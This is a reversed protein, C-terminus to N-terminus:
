EEGKGNAWDPLDSARGIKARKTAAKSEGAEGTELRSHSSEGGVTVCVCDADRAPAGPDGRGVRRAVVGRLFTQDDDSLLEIKFKVEKGDSKKLTVNTEDVDVFDAEIKRGDRSTWSRALVMTPLALLAVLLCCFRASFPMLCWLHLIARSPSMLISDEPDTLFVDSEGM